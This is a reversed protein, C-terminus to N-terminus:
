DHQRLVQIFAKVVAPDFQTGAHKAIEDAAETPTHAPRYPRESIMAGYVDCVAVIRAGLPIHEGAIGAPYGKGDWHERHSAVIAAVAALVGGVSSLLRHGLHPHKRVFSWEEPTLPEPKELIEAPIGLNGVDHLLAGLGVLRAEENSRGMIIATEEALEALLRARAIGAPDQAELASTLAQISSHQQTMADLYSVPTLPQAPPPASTGTLAPLETQTAETTVDAQGDSQDRSWPMLMHTQRSSRHARAAIADEAIAILAHAAYGDDPCLALGARLTIPVIEAVKLANDSPIMLPRTTVANIVREVAAQAPQATMGPWVIAFCNAGLRALLDGEGLTDRLREAVAFLVDDGFAYGFRQNVARFDDIDFLALALPRQHQRAFEVDPELRMMFASHAIAGTLPDYLASATQTASQPRTLTSTENNVAAVAQLVTLQNELAATSSEALEVLTTIAGVMEHSKELVLQQTEGLSGAADAATTDPTAPRAQATMAISYWCLALQRERWVAGIAVGLTAVVGACIAAWQWPWQPAFPADPAALMVLVLACLTLSALLTLIATSAASAPPRPAATISPSASLM